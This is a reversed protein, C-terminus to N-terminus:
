YGKVLDSDICCLESVHKVCAYSPPQCQPQLSPIVPVLGWRRNHIYHELSRRAMCQGRGLSPAPSWDSTPIEGGPLPQSTVPPPLLSTARQVVYFQGKNTTSRVPCSSWLQLKVAVPHPDGPPKLEAEPSHVTCHGDPPPWWNAILFFLYGCLIADLPKQFLLFLKRVSKLRRM